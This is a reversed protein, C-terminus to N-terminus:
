FIQIQSIKYAKRSIFISKRLLGTKPRFHGPNFYHLIGYSPFNWELFAMFEVIKAMGYEVIWKLDIGYIGYEL